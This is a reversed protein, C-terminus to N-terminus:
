DNGCSRRCESAMSKQVTITNGSTDTCYEFSPTYGASVSNGSYKSSYNDKTVYGSYSVIEGLEENSIVDGHQELEAKEEKTTSDVTAASASLAPLCSLASFVTVIALFTATAKTLLTKAKLM